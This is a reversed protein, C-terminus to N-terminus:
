QVIFKLKTYEIQESDSLAIELQRAVFEQPVHFHFQAFACASM